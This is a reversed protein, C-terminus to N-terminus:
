FNGDFFTKSQVWCRVLGGFRKDVEEKQAAADRLVKLSVRTCSLSFPRARTAMRSPSPSSLAMSPSPSSHPMAPLLGHSRVSGQVVVDVASFFTALVHCSIKDPLPCIGEKRRHKRKM